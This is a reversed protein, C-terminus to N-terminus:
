EALGAYLFPNWDLVPEFGPINIVIKKLIFPPGSTRRKTETGCYFFDM